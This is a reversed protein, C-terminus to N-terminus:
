EEEAKVSIAVLCLHQPTQMYVSDGKEAGTEGGGYCANKSARQPRPNPQTPSLSSPLPPPSLPNLPLMSHTIITLSSALTHQTSTSLLITIPNLALRRELPPLIM